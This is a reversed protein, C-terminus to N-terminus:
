LSWLHDSSQRTRSWVNTWKDYSFERWNRMSEVAEWEADSLADEPEAVADTTGDTADSEVREHAVTVLGNGSPIVIAPHITVDKNRKDRVTRVEDSTDLWERHSRDPLLHDDQERGAVHARLL